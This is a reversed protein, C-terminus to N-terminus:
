IEAMHCSRERGFLTLSLKLRKWESKIMKLFGIKRLIVNLIDYELLLDRKKKKAVAELNISCGKVKKRFLRSKFQWTDIAKSHPSPTNWISAVLDHFGPHDLWCKEFHFIKPSTVRRGRTDLVLPAHDSGIRPLASLTSLPFHQDWEM